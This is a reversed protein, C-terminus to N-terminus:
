CLLPELAQRTHTELMAYVKLLLPLHISFLLPSAKLM